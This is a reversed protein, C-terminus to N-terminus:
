WTKHRNLLSLSLITGAVVESWTSHDLLAWFLKVRSLSAREREREREWMEVPVIWNSHSEKVREQLTFWESRLLIPSFPKLFSRFLIVSLFSVTFFKQQQPEHPKSCQSCCYCVRKTFWKGLNQRLSAFFRAFGLLFCALGCMGLTRHSLVDCSLFFPVFCCCFFIVFNYSVHVPMSFIVFTLSYSRILTKHVLSISLRSLKASKLSAWLFSAKLIEFM